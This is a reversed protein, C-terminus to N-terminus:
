GNDPRVDAPGSLTPPVLGIRARRAAARRLGLTVVLYSALAIGAVAYGGGTAIGVAAAAGYLTLRVQATAV